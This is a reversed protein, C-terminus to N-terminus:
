VYIRMSLFFVVVLFVKCVLFYKPNVTLFCKLFPSKYSAFTDFCRKRIEDSCRSKQGQHKLQDPTLQCVKKHSLEFHNIFDAKNAAYSSDSLRLDTGQDGDATGLLGITNNLHPGDLIVKLNEPDCSIEVGFISNVILYPGWMKATIM